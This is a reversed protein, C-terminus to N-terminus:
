RSSGSSQCTVYADCVRLDKWLPECTDLFEAHRPSDQYADHAAKNVFVLHLAVDFTLDSVSWALEEARTGVAFFVTGAHGTLHKQCADLLRQRAQASPDKLAFYVSHALMPEAAM